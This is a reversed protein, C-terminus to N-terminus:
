QDGDRADCSQIDGNNDGDWLSLEGSLSLILSKQELSHEILRAVVPVAISAGTRNTTVWYDFELHRFALAAFDLQRSSEVILQRLNMSESSLGKLEPKCKVCSQWIRPSLLLEYPYGLKAAVSTVNVFGVVTQLNEFSGNESETKM